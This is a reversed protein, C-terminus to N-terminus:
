LFCDLLKGLNLAVNIVSILIIQDIRHVPGQGSIPGIIQDLNRSVM